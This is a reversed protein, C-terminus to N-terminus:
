SSMIGERIRGCDSEGRIKTPPCSTWGTSSLYKPRILQSEFISKKKGKLSETELPCQSRVSSDM